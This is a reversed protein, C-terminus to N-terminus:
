VWKKLWKFIVKLEDQAVSCSLHSLVQLSVQKAAFGWCEPKSATVEQNKHDRQKLKRIDLIHKAECPANKPWDWNYGEHSHRHPSSATTCSWQGELLWLGSPAKLGSPKYHTDSPASKRLSTLAADRWPRQASSCRLLLTIKQLGVFGEQNEVSRTNARHLQLLNLRIDM